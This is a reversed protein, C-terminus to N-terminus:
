ANINYIEIGLKEVNCLHITISGDRNFLENFPMSGDQYILRLAKYHLDNINNLTRSQFM